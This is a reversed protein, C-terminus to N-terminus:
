GGRKEKAGEKHWPDDEGSAKSRRCRYEEETCLVERGSQGSYTLELGALIQEDRVVFGDQAQCILIFDLLVSRVIERSYYM